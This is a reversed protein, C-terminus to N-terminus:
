PQGPFTAIDPDLRVHDAAEAAFWVASTILGSRGNISGACISTHANTGDAVGSRHFLSSGCEACFGYAVNPDDTPSFWNLSDGDIRLEETGVATAAM